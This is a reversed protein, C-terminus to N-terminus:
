FDVKIEYIDNLDAYGTSRKLASIWKKMESENDVFYYRVRKPYTVSFCCFEFNEIVQKPEEKIFTGSLNHM